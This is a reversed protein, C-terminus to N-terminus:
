RTNDVGQIIPVAAEPKRDRTMYGAGFTALVTLAVLVDDPFDLNLFRSAIWTLVVMASGAIGANAVKATPNLTPQNYPVEKM